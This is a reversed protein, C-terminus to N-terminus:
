GARLFQDTANTGHQALGIADPRVRRRRAIRPIVIQEHQSLPVAAGSRGDYTGGETREVLEAYADADSLYPRLGPCADTAPV